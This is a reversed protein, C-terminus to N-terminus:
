LQVAQPDEVLQRRRRRITDVVRGVRVGTVANSPGPTPYDYEVRKKEANYTPVGRGRSMVMVPGETADANLATIFQKVYRAVALCTATDLRGDAGLQQSQQSPPLFIRGKSALGRPIGTTLTVAIAEQPSNRITLAQPGAIPPLYFHSYSETDAPYTGDQQVTAVKLETLRYDTGWYCRDGAAYGTGRWWAEVIPAYALAIAENSADQKLTRLGFQWREAAGYCDGIVTIYRHDFQYTM